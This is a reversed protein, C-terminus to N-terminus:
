SAHPTNDHETAWAAIQSRSTFGLKVLINEVHAEATRQSIVLNSAIQKNSMGQRVLEAIERERRSLRARPEQRPAPETRPPKGRAYAIAQELSVDAGQAYRHRYQDDGLAHRTRQECEDHYHSFFTLLPAGAERRITEATGFLQAADDHRNESTAVWALTEACLGTCHHDNFEQLLDLSERALTAARQPQGQRWAEVGLGWLAYSCRWSEGYKRSLALLEEYAATVRESDGHLSASTGLVVLDTSFWPLNGSFRLRPIVEECFKISNSLDGQLAANLAEAVRLLAATDADHDATLTRAESILTSAAPVDSQLLALYSASILLRLRYGDKETGHQLIRDCWRRGESTLGSVRWYDHLADAIRTGAVTGTPENLCFELATRINAHETRLRAFWRAQDPGFWHQQMQEALNLCWDRHRQRVPTEQGSHRLMDRGYQRITELLRYRAQGGRDDRILISKDVLGALADLVSTQTLNEDACVAEAGDLDFSDAFVSTRAWLEKENSSCLDCSWEILARLTQHRPLAARNGTTLLSFRDDLRRLVQEPSLVKLSVAALEIALPIGDLRRCIGSAVHGNRDDLVFDPLVAKARDTFLEIAEYGALASPRVGSDADPCQLASVPLISEGAIGLVQRSTVLIRLEPCRELLAAVTLACTHLVHECNDLVLLLRRDAVHEAVTEATWRTSQDHIGLASVIAQPVLGEDELGALEVLWVGDPFARRMNWAARSALRTKGVGGVGTLSVLRSSSLAQRVQSLEKRRGIFSTLETPWKGQLRPASVDTM